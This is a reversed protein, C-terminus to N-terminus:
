EKLTKSDLAALIQLAEPSAMHGAKLEILVRNKFDQLWRYRVKEKLIELDKTNVLLAELSEDMWLIQCLTRHGLYGRQSCKECGKGRFIKQDESLGLAEIEAARPSQEERCHPCIQRFRYPALIGKLSTAILSSPIGMEVMRLLALDPGPCHLSSLVLTGSLAMEVLKSASSSDEMKCLFVDPEQRRLSELARGITFGASPNVEIQSINEFNYEIPNELTIINKEQSNLLKLLSYLLTTKGCGTPGTVLFIGGPKGLHKEILSKEEPELGFEELPLPRPNEQLIRLVLREGEATPMTSIWFTRKKGKEELVMQGDQPINREGIDLGGLIKLRVMVPNKLDESIVRATQFLGRRKFRVLLKPGEPQLHLTGGEKEAEDLLGEVIKIAPSIEEEEEEWSFPGNENKSFPPEKEEDKEDPFPPEKKKKEEGFLGAMNKLAEQMLDSFLNKKQSFVELLAQKLLERLYKERDSNM